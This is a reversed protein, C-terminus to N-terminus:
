DIYEQLRKHYGLMKLRSKAATFSVYFKSSIKMALTDLIYKSNSNINETLESVKKEVFEKRMLLASALARANNEMHNREIDSFSYYIKNREDISNWKSYIDKHILYHALEEGLTFRYKNELRDNDILQHDIFIRNLGILTFAWTDHRSKLYFFTDPILKYREIIFSEIDFRLKHFYKDSDNLTNEAIKELQYLHYFKPKLNEIDGV